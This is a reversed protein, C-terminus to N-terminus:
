LPVAIKGYGPNFVLLYRFSVYLNQSLAWEYLEAVFCQAARRDHGDAAARHIFSPGHRGKKHQKESFYGGCGPRDVFLEPTLSDRLVPTWLATEM